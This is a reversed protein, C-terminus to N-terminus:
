ELMQELAEVSEAVQYLTQPNGSVLGQKYLSELASLLPSWCGDINLFIVPKRVLGISSNAMVTFAEDLTGIGGPLVVLVDSERAMMDKRDTLDACRFTVDICESALGRQVIIDPVMGYVRGGNRKVNQALVEMLGSASGGYVLTRGTRGIWQGVEQAAEIYTLSLKSKSSLFVGIKQHKM